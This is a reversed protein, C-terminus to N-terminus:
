RFASYLFAAGFIGVVLLILGVTSRKRNCFTCNANGCGFYKDMFFSASIFFKIFADDIRTEHWQEFNDTIHVAM